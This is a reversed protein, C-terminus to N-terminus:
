SMDVNKQGVADGPNHCVRVREQARSEEQCLLTHIRVFAGPATQHHVVCAPLQLSYFHRLDIM